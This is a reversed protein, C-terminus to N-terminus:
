IKINNCTQLNKQIKKEHIDPNHFYFSEVLYESLLMSSLWSINSFFLQFGKKSFM